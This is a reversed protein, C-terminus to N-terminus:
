EGKPAGLLDIGIKALNAVGEPGILSALAARGAPDLKAIRTRQLEKEFAVDRQRKLGRLKKRQADSVAIEDALMADLVEVSVEQEPATTPM